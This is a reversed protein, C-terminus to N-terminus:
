MKILGLMDLLVLYASLREQKVLYNKKFFTLNKQPLTSIQSKYTTTKKSM